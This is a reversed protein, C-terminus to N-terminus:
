NKGNILKIFKKLYWHHYVFYIGTGINIVFGLSFFVIYVVFFITNINIIMRMKMILKVLDINETCKEVLPDILTKRCKCHSYDLYEGIDCSKDCECKCNSPNWIFRKDCVGKDILEKCECRCKDENWRQKNNYIIADLQHTRKCTEHKCTEQRVHNIVWQFVNLSNVSSLNYGFFMIVPVFARKIFTFM